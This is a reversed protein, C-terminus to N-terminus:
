LTGFCGGITGQDEYGIGEKYNRVGLSICDQKFTDIMRQSDVDSYLLKYLKIQMYRFSLSELNIRDHLKEYLAPDDQKYREIKKYAEDILSLWNELLGKPWYEEIIFNSETYSVKGNYGHKEALYAFYTNEEDFLRKMVASADKYYNTFFKDILEDQSQDIQWQLNSSLYGRLRYWDTGAVQNYQHQDFLYKTGRDYLFRYNNQMSSFNNYPALYAQFNTGYMWTFMTDCLVHWKDFTAATNVNQEANFDYYYEAFIPAYFLAVNKHLRLSEDAPVYKGDKEIVPADETQHYAFMALLVERGPYHEDVWATVEKAIRNMFLVYTASNTGYKNLSELCKQCDCWTNHDEQTFTLLNKDPNEDLAQTIRDVVVKALNEPDRSLCLQKGDDAFWEPHYNEPDEPNNYIDPSVVHFFTHYSVSSEVGDVVGKFDIWVDSSTNFRTRYAVAEDFWAEGYTTLRYDFDPKEKLSVNLLKENTIGKELATEDIAFFEYSFQERLWGYVAYVTGDGSGGVMFVGSGQTQVIYGDHGLDKKDLTVGAQQLFSTEGVSLIKENQSYNVQNDTQTKLEVGTAEYFNARLEEVAFKVAPDTENEPMVIVYDSAGGKVLDVDTPSVTREHVGRANVPEEGKNVLANILFFAGTSLALVAAVIIAIIKINKSSTKMM